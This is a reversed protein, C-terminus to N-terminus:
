FAPFVITAGDQEVVL